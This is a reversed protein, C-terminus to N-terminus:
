AEALRKINAVVEPGVKKMVPQVVLLEVIKGIIWYPMVVEHVLTLRSGREIPEITYAVYMRKVDGGLIQHFALKKNEEWETFKCLSRILRGDTKKEMYFITEVGSHQEGVFDFRKVLPDVVSVNERKAIMPWINEPPAAIAISEKLKM